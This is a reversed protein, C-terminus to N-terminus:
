AHPDFVENLGDGVLNVAVVTMLLMLGPFISMWWATQIFPQANNLMYGWSVLSRDGLGLFSLGAEVLIAGGIQLATSVMVPPLANPLVHRAFIVWERAGTARAAFVFERTRLSLVQGRLLRATAPWFTLALLVVIIFISSGFLAAVLIALFFRPLLQFLETVRMLLDDVWGGMFGAVGGVLMGILSSGLAVAIGVFLSVRAGHVLEAFVDRGLDDTGLWHTRTPPQLAAGISAFPNGPAIQQAFLAALVVLLTFALGLLALPQRLFRQRLRGVPTRPQRSDARSDDIRAAGAPHPLGQTHPTV